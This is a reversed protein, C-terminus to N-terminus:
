PQEASKAQAARLERYHALEAQSKREFDTRQALKIDGFKKQSEVNARLNEIQQKVTMPVPKGDREFTAAYALQEALSKEQDAQSVKINALEQDFATIRQKQAEILADETPYARLLQRDAQAAEQAHRKEQAAAEATSADLKKEEVTKVREIHKVVTGRADIVDYGAQLAEATPSDGYQVVGHLDTWRYRNHQAVKQALATQTGAAFALTLALISAIRMPLSIGKQSAYVIM